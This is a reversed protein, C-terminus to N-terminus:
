NVGPIKVYVWEIIAWAFDISAWAVVSGFVLAFPTSGFFYLGYQLLTFFTDAIGGKSYDFGSLLGILFSAFGFFVSLILETIM